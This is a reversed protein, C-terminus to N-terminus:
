YDPCLKKRSRAVDLTKNIDDIMDILKNLRQEYAEQTNGGGGESSESEIPEESAESEPTEESVENESEPIVSTQERAAELEGSYNQDSVTSPTRLNKVESGCGIVFLSWSFCVLIKYM